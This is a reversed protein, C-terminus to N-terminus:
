RESGGQGVLDGRPCDPNTCRYCKESEEGCTKCVTGSSAASM